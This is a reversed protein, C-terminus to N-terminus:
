IDSISLFTPALIETALVKSKLQITTKLLTAKGLIQSVWPEFYPRLKTIDHVFYYITQKTHFNLLM